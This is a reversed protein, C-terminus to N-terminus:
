KHKGYHYGTQINYYKGGKHSRGKGLYFNGNHSTKHKHYVYHKQAHVKISLLLMLIFTRKMIIM